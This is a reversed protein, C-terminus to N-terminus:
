GDKHHISIHNHITRGFSFHEVKVEWIELRLCGILVDPMKRFRLGAVSRGAKSANGRGSHCQSPGGGPSGCCPSWSRSCSTSLLRHGGHGVRWAWHASTSTSTLSTIAMFRLSPDLSDMAAYSVVVHNTPSPNSPHFLLLIYPHTYISRLSAACRGFWAFCTWVLRNQIVSQLQCHLQYSNATM